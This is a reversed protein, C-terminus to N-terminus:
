GDCQAAALPGGVILPGPDPRRERRGGEGSSREVSYDLSIAGAGRSLLFILISASMLNEFWADPYVLFQIVATM